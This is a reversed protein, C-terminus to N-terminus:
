ATSGTATRVPLSVLDAASSRGGCGWGGRRGLWTAWAVRYRASSPALVVPGAFGALALTGMLNGIGRGEHMATEPGSGIMRIYRLAPDSSGLLIAADSAVRTCEGDIDWAYDFGAAVIDAHWQDANGRVVVLARGGAADIAAALEIRHMMDGTAVTVPADLARSLHALAVPEVADECRIGAIRVGANTARALAGAVELSSDAGPDIGHADGSRLELTRLGRAACVGILEHVTAEPAAASSLGLQM